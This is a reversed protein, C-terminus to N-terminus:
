VSYINTKINKNEPFRQIEKLIHEVGFSDFYVINNANVYLDIWYTRISEYDDLNIVYAGDKRKPLNNRSYVSKLQPENEYYRQLEFDKLHHPSM